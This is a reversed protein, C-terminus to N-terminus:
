QLNRPDQRHPSRSISTWHYLRGTFVPNTKNVAAKDDRLRKFRRFSYGSQWKPCERYRFDAGLIRCEVKWRVNNLITSLHRQDLLIQAAAKHQGDFLRVKAGGEEEANIWALPVHLQPRKRHFEEILGRISNGISRPNIKDDHHLYEIPLKAFATKMGSLEDSWIPVVIPTYHEMEPLSFSMETGSINVKLPYKAAGM